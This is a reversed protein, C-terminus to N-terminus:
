APTGRTLRINQGLNPLRTTRNYDIRLNTVAQFPDKVEAEKGHLEIPNTVTKARMDRTFDLVGNGAVLPAGGLTGTSNYYVTGGDVTLASVGDSGDITTEGDSQGFTTIATGSVGGIQLSGGTKQVLALTVDAGLVVVADSNKNSRYGVEIEAIVAEESTFVAAGFNGKYVRVINDAHTGNWIVAPQDGEAIGTDLVIIETEADNTTLKIRGSGSGAGEGITVTIKQADAVAGLALYTDRYEYYLGTHPPLGIKGTYSAKVTIAAPTVASQAIGYLCDSSSEEFIVTDGDVPVSGTTWNDVDTFWNPGAPSTVSATVFSAGGVTASTVTFPKGDSPGTLTIYSTSDTATVEEFEPITSANWAAVLAAVLTAEVDDTSTVVIDKGNITMTWTDDVACDVPTIKSVQAIPAADGRWIPTAM